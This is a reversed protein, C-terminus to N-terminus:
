IFNFLSLGSIKVYSQQAAELAFAENTLRSLAEAYDIDRLESLVQDNVLKTGEHLNRVSDLTNQRAGIEAKVRSMNTEAYTLNTLSDAILKDFVLADAASDSLNKLGESLKGITTLIGQKQATGVYFRDGDAPIGSLTISWGLNSVDPTAPTTDLANADITMPSGTFPIVATNVPTDLVGNDLLDTRSYINFGGAAADYRVIYDEPFANREYNTLGDSADVDSALSSAAIVTASSNNKEQSVQILKEDTAIDVFISRGSDSVAIKTSSAVQVLRQGDDGKYIFEGAQTQEFPQVAGQYGAFIYEGNVDRTNALQLMEDLRADLEAAINQRDSQTLALGGAQITLERIRVLINSAQQIQGEEINLRNETADANNIYQDLQSLERSVQIIRASAVPDDSPTVVRRGTTVQSQTDYTQQQLRLMGQVGSNFGQLFSIRITM